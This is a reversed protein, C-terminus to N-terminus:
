VKSVKEKAKKLLNSGDDNDFKMPSECDEEDYYEDAGNNPDGSVASAEECWSNSDDESLSAVYDM